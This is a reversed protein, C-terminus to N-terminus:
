PHPQMLGDHTSRDLQIWIRSGVRMVLIGETGDHIFRYVTSYSKGMLVSLDHLSLWQSHWDPSLSPSM